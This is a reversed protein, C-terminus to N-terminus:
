KEVILTGNHKKFLREVAPDAAANKDEKKALELEGIIKGNEDLLAAAHTYGEKEVLEDLEDLTVKSANPDNALTTIEAIIWKKSRDITLKQRAREKLKQMTLNVVWVIFLGAVILSTLLFITFM